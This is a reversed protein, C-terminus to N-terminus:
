YLIICTLPQLYYNAQTRERMCIHVCECVGRGQTGQEIRPLLLCPQLIVTEQKASQIATRAQKKHAQQPCINGVSRVSSLNKRLLKRVNEPQGRVQRALCRLDQAESVQAEKSWATTAGGLCCVIEVLKWPKGPDM